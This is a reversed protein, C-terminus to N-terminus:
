SEPCPRETVNWSMVNTVMGCEAVRPGDTTRLCVTEGPAFVKGQARCYCALPNHGPAQAAQISPQEHATALRGFGLVAGISVASALLAALCRSM